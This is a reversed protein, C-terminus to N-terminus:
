RCRPDGLAALDVAAAMAAYGAPSPHLHDGSDFESALRDPDGPDRLVAHFDVVGDVGATSRIWQNIENRKAIAGPSGHGATSADKSPPITGLIVRLGAAHMRDVATQLGVEVEAATPAPPLGIDNTGEMLIVVRAGAQDLVDRDLRDLLSPGAFSIVGPRLVENGSIGANQVALDTIGAAAMRRALVDPYRGNTNSPSPFGDTISDGVAILTGARNSARVEVDTLFPWDLLSQTFAAGDLDGTHDGSAAASAYSAQLAIFHDTARGSAGQVYLSVALNEFARFRFARQDSVVEGGPPISVARQRGFRLTRLSGPVIAAGAGQRGITVAGFRVAQTGFRNSLRVRVRTGGYTPNLILRLSQDVFAGGTSDGPSAGWAGVWHRGRCRRIGAAHSSGFALITVGALAIITAFRPRRGHM